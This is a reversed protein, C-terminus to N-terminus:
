AAAAQEMTQCTAPANGTVVTTPHDARQQRL